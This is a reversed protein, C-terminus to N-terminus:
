PAPHIPSVQPSIPPAAKLGLKRSSALAEVRSVDMLVPVHHHGSDARALTGSIRCGQRCRQRWAKSLVLNIDLLQLQQVTQQSTDHDGLLGTVCVPTRLRFIPVDEIADGRRVDEYNPPGAFVQQRLSGLLSVEQGFRDCAFSSVCCASLMCLLISRPPMVLHHDRRCGHERRTWSM